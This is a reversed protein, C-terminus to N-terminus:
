MDKSLSIPSNSFVIIITQLSLPQCIGLPNALRYSKPVLIGSIMEHGSNKGGPRSISSKTLMLSKAGVNRSSAPIGMGLSIFACLKTSISVASFCPIM